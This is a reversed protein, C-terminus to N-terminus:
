ARRQRRKRTECSQDPLTSFAELTMERPVAKVDGITQHADITALRKPRAKACVFECEIFNCLTDVNLWDASANRRRRRKRSNRQAVATYYEM